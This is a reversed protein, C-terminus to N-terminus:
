KKAREGFRLTSAGVRILDGNRLPMAKTVRQDNLYTGLSTGADEVLYSNNRLKIRAHLREITNDGFIGLDCSEARGISTEDKTLMMERGARFGAEVKLWAEKLFVQALGIFLGISGGLLIFAMAKFTRSFAPLVDGVFGNFFGGILGGILGGLIGNIVKKMPMKSESGAQRARVLDFVGISSGIAVGVLVWAVLILPRYINALLQGVFAGVTGGLLGIGACIAIRALREQGSANLVADLGGVTAALLVGLLGGILPTKILETTMAQIAPVQNIGWVLLAAWGGLCACYYIFIKFSM